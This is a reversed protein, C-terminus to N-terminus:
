STAIYQVRRLLDAGDTCDIIWEGAEALREPDDIDALLATMREATSAGFKRAVQRCLLAREQSIGQAVGQAMGQAVGEARYEEKWKHFKEGLTLRLEGGEYSQEMEGEEFEGLWELAYGDRTVVRRAWEVIVERLGRAEGGGLWEYLREVWQPAERASGLGELGALLTAANGVPLDEVKLGGFDVAVYAEGTFSMGEGESEGGPGEAVLEGMRVPASWARRGNYLVIPLVPPLREGRGFPTRRHLDLYLLDVYHRSRLAMVWDVESQFELMVLLHLWQGVGETDAGRRRVRWVSDGLRRRLDETIYEHPLKELTDLDIAALLAPGEDLLGAVLRVTDAVMRPYGFMAKYAEDHKMSQM